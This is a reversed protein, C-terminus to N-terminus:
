IVLPDLKIGPTTASSNGIRTSRTVTTPGHQKKESDNSVRYIGLIGWSGVDFFCLAVEEFCCPGLRIQLGVYIFHHWMFEVEPCRQVWPFDVVWRQLCLWFPDGQRRSRLWRLSFATPTTREDFASPEVPKLGGQFSGCSTRKKPM